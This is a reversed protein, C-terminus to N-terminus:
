NSARLDSMIRRALAKLASYRAQTHVLCSFRARRWGKKFSQVKKVGGRLKSLWHYEPRSSLMLCHYHASSSRSSAGSAQSALPVQPRSFEMLPLRRSDITKVFKGGWSWLVLISFPLLNPHPPIPSPSRWIGTLICLILTFLIFHELLSSHFTTFM